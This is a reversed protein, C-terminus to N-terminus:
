AIMAQRYVNLCIKASDVWRFKKVEISGNDHLVQRLEPYRTAALINNAIQDIDWFDAKLCHSVMESVGSQRSVLIPTGSALAELSTLGFPESVSPMVYLDAMRYLRNLDNGRMFGSFIVKDSLGLRASEEILWHEMDGSGAFLFIINQDIESAKKAAALFYDPGKQFTLRGVFLVIRKGSKKLHELDCSESVSLKSHDIANPVVKIKGPDINYCDVIRRKTYDSVAVVADARELGEKEIACIERNMCDQHVRDYETAHIQFVLPRGSIEKAKLGAPASLWDHCHIINFDDDRAIRGAQYGYRMVEGVLDKRWVSHCVDIGAFSRYEQRYSGATLYPSLPSDIKITKAIGSIEDGGFVFKCAESKCDIKKPLVFTIRAGMSSLAETLGQCAVGLGGSNHPPFEWGFM